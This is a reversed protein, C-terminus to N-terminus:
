VHLRVHICDADLFRATLLTPRGYGRCGFALDSKPDRFSPSKGSHSCDWVGYPSAAIDFELIFVLIRHPLEAYM